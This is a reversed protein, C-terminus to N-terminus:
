QSDEWVICNEPCYKIAEDICAQAYRDQDLVQVYGLENIEFVDPCIDVCGGCLSCDGIDVVPIKM